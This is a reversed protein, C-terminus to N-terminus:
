RRPVHYSRSEQQSHAWESWCMALLMTVAVWAILLSINAIDGVNCQIVAAFLPDAPLAAMANVPSAVLAPSPLTAAVAQDPAADAARATLPVLALGISALVIKPTTWM